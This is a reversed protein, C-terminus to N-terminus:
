VLTILLAAVTRLPHLLSLFIQGAGYGFSDEAQCPTFRFEDFDVTCAGSARLRLELRTVNKLLMTSGPLLPVFAKGYLYLKSFDVTVRQWDSRAPIEICVAPSYWTFASTYFRLGTLKVPQDGSNRVWFSVAKERSYDGQADEPALGFSLLGGKERELRVAGGEKGDALFSVQAGGFIGTARFSPVFAPDNIKQWTQTFDCSRWDVDRPYVAGPLQETVFPAAAIGKEGFAAYLNANCGFHGVAYAASVPAPIDDNWVRVQNTGVLEASAEHYYGDAGTVTFGRLRASDKIFLGNGAQKFTLLIAGDIAEAKQLLPTGYAAGYRLGLAALAMREGVPRKTYPHIAGVYDMSADIENQVDWNLPVDYIAVTALGTSAADMEGLMANFLGPQGPDRTNYAYGALNTCVLPLAPVDFLAAWSEQLLGLARKYANGSDWPVGRSIYGIIETEGQYWIVGAPSFHRLPYIRKNYNVTMDQFHNPDPHTDWGDAPLYRWLAEVDVKLHADIEERALWTYISSGGLSAGIVGVPVDLAEQLECVFHWAVASFGYASMTDGRWWAAGKIDEQPLLPLKQGDGQYEPFGPTSLMRVWPKDPLTGAKNGAFGEPTIGYQWDMNSQGGALWLEGFLVRELETITEGGSTVVIRYEDYSAPQAPLTLEFMGQADAQGDEQALLAGGLTLEARLPTGAPAFGALRVPQGQQFLMDSGYIWLLRITPESQMTLEEGRAAIPLAACFLLALLLSTIRKTM